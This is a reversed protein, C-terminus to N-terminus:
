RQKEISQPLLAIQDMMAGTHIKLGASQANFDELGAVVATLFKTSKSGISGTLFLKDLQNVDAHIHHNKLMSDSTTFLIASYLDAFEGKEGRTAGVEKFLRALEKKAASAQTKDTIISM